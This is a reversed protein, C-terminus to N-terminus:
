AVGAMAALSAMNRQSGKTTRGLAELSVWNLQEVSLDLDGKIQLGLASVDGDACVVAEKILAKPHRQQCADLSAGCEQVIKKLMDTKASITMAESGLLKCRYFLLQGRQFVM